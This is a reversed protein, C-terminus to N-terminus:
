TLIYHSCKTLTLLASHKQYCLVAQTEWMLYSWEPLPEHALRQTQDFHVEDPYSNVDTLVGIGSLHVGASEVKAWFEGLAKVNQRTELRLLQRVNQREQAERKRDNKWTTITSLVWGLAIGGAGSILSLITSSM